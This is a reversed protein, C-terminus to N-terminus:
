PLHRGFGLPTGISRRLIIPVTCGLLVGTSLEFTSTLGALLAFAILFFPISSIAVELPRGNLFHRITAVFLAYMMLLFALLMLVGWFLGSEIWMSQIGFEGPKGNAISGLGEGLFGVHSPLVSLELAELIRLGFDGKENSQSLFILVPLSSKGVLDTFQRLTVYLFVGLLLVPPLLYWGYGARRSGAGRKGLVLAYVSAFSALAVAAFAILIRSRAGAILMALLASLANFLIWLRSRTSLGQEARVALLSFYFQMLGMASYRDASVFISPYRAFFSDDLFNRLIVGGLDGGSYVTSIFFNPNIYNQVLGVANIPLMMVLFVQALRGLQFGPARLSFALFFSLPIGVYLAHSLASLFDPSPMFTQMVYLLLLTAASFKILVGESGVASKPVKRESCIWGLIALSVAYLVTVSVYSPLFRKILDGYLAVGAIAIYLRLM